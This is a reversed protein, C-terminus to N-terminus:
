NIINDLNDSFLNVNSEIINMKSDVIITKRIYQIGLLRKAIEANRLKFENIPTKSKCESCSCYSSNIKLKNLWKDNSINDINISIFNINPYKNKLEKVKNHSYKFSNKSNQSWFYILSKDNILNNINVPIKNSNILEIIPLKKGKKLKKLSNFLTTIRKKQYNKSSDSTTKNINLYHNYIKNAEGQTKSFSLFRRTIFSTLRSKIEQNTVLSDILNLKILNYKTNDKKFLKKNNTKIFEEYALNDFHPFLFNYYHYFEQLLTNNYNINKRFDYFDKPYLVDDSNNLEIFRYAEKKSDFIYDITNIAVGKFLTSIPTSSTFSKLLKIENLKISDLKNKFSTPNLKYLNSSNRRSNEYKTFLNILYNNKKSGLGSFSLSEDFDLTNVRLTISDKPELLILQYENGHSFGYFGPVTSEIKTIFRNNSDLFLTDIIVNSKFITIKKDTPNIIEGGIYSYTIDRQNQCDCLIISLLLFGFIRKMNNM